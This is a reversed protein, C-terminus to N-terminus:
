IHTSIHLNCINTFEPDSKSCIYRFISIHQKQCKELLIPCIISPQNFFFHIIKTALLLDDPQTRIHSLDPISQHLVYIHVLQHM